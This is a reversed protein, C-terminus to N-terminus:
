PEITGEKIEKLNSPPHLFFRVQEEGYEPADPIPITEVPLRGRFEKGILIALVQSIFVCYLGATEVIEDLV